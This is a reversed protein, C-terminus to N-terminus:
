SLIKKANENIKRLKATSLFIENAMRINAAGRRLYNAGIILMLAGIINMGTGLMVLQSSHIISEATAACQSIM